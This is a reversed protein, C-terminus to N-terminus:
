PANPNYAPQQQYESKQLQGQTPLSSQQTQIQQIPPGPYPPPQDMAYAHPAAQPPYAVSPPMAANYGSQPHSQQAPIQQYQDPPITYGSQVPMGVNQPQQVPGERLVRGRANRKALLCFPCCCCCVLCIIIVLVAAGVIFAIMKGIGKIISSKEPKIDELNELDNKNDWDGQAYQSHSVRIKTEEDTNIHISSENANVSLVVTFLALYLVWVVRLINRQYFTM